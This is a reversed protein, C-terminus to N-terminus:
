SKNLPLTFKFDSGQGEQSEVWISGGLKEVLESCLLLGFGAGKENATGYSSTITSIDFLKDITEKKIGVGNDSVTIEMMNQNLATTISIKGGPHTFKIANSILNRLITKLINEDTEVEIDILTDHTLSISKIHAASHLMQITANIISALVIKKPQLNINDSQSRAWHLVNDLLSISNRASSNMEQLFEKTQEETLKYTNDKDILIELFGSINAIPVRLDHALISFFKDKTANLKELEIEREKLELEAKKVSTIDIFSEIIGSIEDHENRIPKVNLFFYRSEESSTKKEIITQVSKHGNQLKILSCEESNCKNSNLFNYCKSGVLDNGILNNFEAYKKNHAIINFDKDIVRFGENTIDLFQELIYNKDM